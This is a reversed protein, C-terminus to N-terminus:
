AREPETAPVVAGEADRLEVIGRKKLALEEALTLVRRRRTREEYAIVISGVLAMLLLISAIEFPLLYERMFSQGISVTDAVKAAAVGSDAAPALAAQALKASEDWAAGQRLLSPVLVGGFLALAVVLAVWWREYFVHTGQGTVQRTLMIAFLILISVAGAYVLIQVIALFEAEMLMYLAAVGLFSAILWLASHIINKAIVVMLGSGLILLSIVVFVAVPIANM